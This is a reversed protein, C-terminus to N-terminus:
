WFLLCMYLSSITNVLMILIYGYHNIVGVKKNLKILYSRDLNSFKLLKIFNKVIYYTLM